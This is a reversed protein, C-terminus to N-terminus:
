NEAKCFEVFESAFLHQLLFGLHDGLFQIQSRAKPTLNHMFLQAAVEQIYHELTKLQSWRGKWQIQASSGCQLYEYTAGSGRLVGPTAGRESQRRPVDLRDLLSNWQRRFVAISAPYLRQDLSLHGFHVLEFVSHVQRRSACTARAFRSTKPNKVYIYLAKFELFADVPFVLDKRTLLLFENPHLMGGFGLAVIGAFTYGWLLSLALIARLMPASLVARCAGPEEIQWKKDVQWAGSLAFRFEPRLEQVARIAYVLWYRPAGQRFLHLGLALNAAEATELVQVLSLRPYQVCWKEFAALYKQMRLATAQAFGGLLNLEGRPTYSSKSEPGPNEEIDGALLLLLRYWRGVPRTWRASEVMCDFLRPRGRELEELWSPKPRSPPHAEGDRSPGDARNWASRCHLAGPYLGSGFVYSLSSRLIRSLAPSSSCGKAAAGMTVRSDLIGVLRSDPHSKSCHKLWSKYVRCELWNIQGSRKFRYRFLETFHLSERVDKVWEPDDHWARLSLDCDNSQLESRITWREGKEAARHADKSGVAMAQCLPLPIGASFSSVAEGVKPAKGFVAMSSPQCRQEFLVISARTFTGEVKFHQGKYKCSCKGELQRYWPKNHIWKSAKQFASGYSCFCFKSIVCGLERLTQFADLLFM